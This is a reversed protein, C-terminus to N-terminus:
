HVSIVIRTYTSRGVTGPTASSTKGESNWASMMKPMMAQSVNAPQATKTVSAELLRAGGIVGREFDSHNGGAAISAM